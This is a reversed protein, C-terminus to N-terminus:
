LNLYNLLNQYNIWLIRKSKLIWKHIINVENTLNIVILLNLVDFSKNIINKFQMAHDNEPFQAIDWYCCDLVKKVTMKVTQRETVIVFLHAQSLKYSYKLWMKQTDVLEQFCQEM